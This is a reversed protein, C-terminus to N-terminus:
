IEVDEDFKMINELADLADSEIVFRVEKDDPDSNVAIGVIPCDLVATFTEGNDGPVSAVGSLVVDYDQPLDELFQILKSVQM